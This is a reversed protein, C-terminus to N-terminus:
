WEDVATQGKEFAFIEDRKENYLYAVFHDTTVDGPDIRLRHAIYESLRTLKAANITPLTGPEYDPGLECDNFLNM